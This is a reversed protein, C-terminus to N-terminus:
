AAPAQGPLDLGARKFATACAGGPPAILTFSRGQRAADRAAAALIQLIAAHMGTAPSTDVVVAGEGNLAALLRDRIGAADRLGLEHALCLKGPGIEDTKEPDM